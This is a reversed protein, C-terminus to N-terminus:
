SLIPSVYEGPANAKRSQLCDSSLEARGASRWRRLRVYRIWPILFPGKVTKM